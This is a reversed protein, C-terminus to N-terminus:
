TGEYHGCDWLIHVMYKGTSSIQNDKLTLSTMETTTTTAKENTTESQGPPLQVPSSDRRPRREEQEELTGSPSPPQAGVPSRPLPVEYEVAKPKIGASVLPLDQVHHEARPPVVPPPSHGEFRDEADTESTEQLDPLHGHHKSKWLGDAFALKPKEIQVGELRRKQHVVRYLQLQTQFSDSSSFPKCVVLKEPDFSTYLQVTVAGLVQTEEVSLPDVKVEIELNVPIDYIDVGHINIPKVEEEEELECSYATAILTTEISSHTLTVVEGILNEPVFEYNCTTRDVFVVAEAPLPNPVHEVLEPLYLCVSHPKTTFHGTCQMPLSKNEGTTISYVKLHPSGLVKPRKASKVVLLENEEVSSSAHAGQYSATARVIKPLPKTSLIDGVSEFTKGQLAQKLDNLPNYVLGFQVASNFPVAYMHNPSDSSSLYVVKTYKLFHINYTEDSSIAGEEINSCFGQEVTVRLPFSKAHKRVLDMLNMLEGEMPANEYNGDMPEAVSLPRSRGPFTMSDGPVGSKRNFLSLLSTSALQDSRYRRLFKHPKSTAGHTPSERQRAKEPIIEYVPSPSRSGEKEQDELDFAAEKEVHSPSSNPGPHAHGEFRIDDYHVKEIGEARDGEHNSAADSM